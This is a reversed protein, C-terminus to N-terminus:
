MRETRCYRALYLASSQRERCCGISSSIRPSCPCAPCSNSTRSRSFCPGFQLLLEGAHEWLLVVLFGLADRNAKPFISIIEVSIFRDTANHQRSLKRFLISWKKSFCIEPEIKERLVRNWRGTHYAEEQLSCPACKAFDKHVDTARRSNKWRARYARCERSPSCPGSCLHCDTKWLTLCAGLSLKPNELPLSGSRLLILFSLSDIISKRGSAAKFSKNIRKRERLRRRKISSYGLDWIAGVDCKPFDYISM